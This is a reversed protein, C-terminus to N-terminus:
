QLGGAVQALTASPLCDPIYSCALIVSLVSMYLIIMHMHQRAGRGVGGVLGGEWGRLETNM